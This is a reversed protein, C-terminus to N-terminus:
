IKGSEYRTPKLNKQYFFLESIVYDSGDVKNQELWAECAQFAMSVEVEDMPDFPCSYLLNWCPKVPAKTEGIIIIDSQRKQYEIVQFKWM